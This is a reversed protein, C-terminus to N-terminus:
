TAQRILYGRMRDFLRGITLSPTPILAQFTVVMTWQQNSQIYIPVTTYLEGSWAAYDIENGATTTGGAIAAFGALRTAPPFMNMPGDTIYPRDTGITMIKNGGNGVNYVDNVFIGVTTPVNARGPEVGFAATTTTSNNVGPFFLNESGIMLFENGATLQNGIVLNTDYVTKPIAGAGPTSSTGQGIPNSYFSFNLAGASPYAIADYLPDWIVDQQGSVGVAYNNLQQATLTPRGGVSCEAVPGFHERVEKSQLEMGDATMQYVASLIIVRGIAERLKNWNQM